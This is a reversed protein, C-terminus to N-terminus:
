QPTDVGAADANCTAILEAKWEKPLYPWEENRQVDEQTLGCRRILWLWLDKHGDSAALNMVDHIQKPRLQMSQKTEFWRIVTLVEEEPYPTDGLSRPRIVNMLTFESGARGLGFHAVLWDAIGWHGKKCATLLIYHHKRRADRTTLGYWEALWQAFGLDGTACAAEFIGTDRIRRATLRFRYTLWRMVHMHGQACIKRLLEVTIYYKSYAFRNVLWVIFELDGDECADSLADSDFMDKIDWGYSEVLPPILRRNDYQLLAGVLARRELGTLKPVIAAFVQQPPHSEAANLIREAILIRLVDPSLPEFEPWLRSAQYKKGEHWHRAKEAFETLVWRVVSAAGKICAIRVIEPLTHVQEPYQRCIWHAAESDGYWCADRLWRGATSAHIRAKVYCLEDRTACISEPNVDDMQPARTNLISVISLIRGIVLIIDTRAM